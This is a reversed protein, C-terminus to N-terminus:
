TGPVSPVKKEPIPAPPSSSPSPAPSPSPSPAPSPSPSPAPSPSPSPPPGLKQELDAVNRRAMVSKSGSPATRLYAKYYDLAKRSNGQVKYAEAMGILAEGFTPAVRLARKFYTIASSFREQDLHCYGLGTLAEAGNPKQKLAHEFLKFAQMTRGRESLANGRKILSEYSGGIPRPGPKKTDKTDKTDKTPPDGGPSQGTTADPTKPDTSAVPTQTLKDLLALLEKAWRHNPNSGLIAEVQTRAGSIRSAKMELLALLFAARLLSKGHRAKTKALAQRLVKVADEDKGKDALLAGEIYIIEPDNPLSKRAESLHNMVESQDHGRLRLYDAMARKVEGMDESLKLAASAHAEAQVVRKSAEDKLETAKLRLDKPDDSSGPNGQHPPDSGPNSSAKLADEALKARRELIQAEERMHQAWTTLVEARAAQALASKKPARSFAALAQKLSEEDDMLYLKRGTQYAEDSREEGSSFLVKLRDRMVFSAVGGGLILVLVLVGIVKGTGRKPLEEAVLEGTPRAESIRDGGDEWAAKPGVDHFQASDSSFAPESMVDDDQTEPLDEPPSTEAAVAADVVQFFSSLEAIDGLRKWTEGSRSIQDDRTVKREVIWQQLTTLEKFTFVQGGITRIMWQKAPDDDFTQQSVPETEVVSRKKVRFMYNCNTCKVTIGVETVKDDDFEYETKCQPCTIDMAPQPNTYWVEM